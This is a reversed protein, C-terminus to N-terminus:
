NKEPQPDRRYRYERGSAKTSDRARCRIFGLRTLIKSVRNQLSQTWDTKHPFGLACLVESVTVEIRDGLWERVNPEWVDVVYRAAQEATALAELEPTELWWPEGARYRHVAEAWLQDRARELGALDVMGRCRVPWFRRAGTEDKFYGTAPPNITAAFICQRLLSSMHKGYPLRIRDRRRTIFAKATSSSASVLAVMEAFEIIWVGATEQAADKTKLESLRDTFWEDRRALTQLAKSKQKGQPGELVLLHDVQCGPAYIRATGSILYRPSIARVYASDEVHFYDILWTDLRPTGDWRLSDLYDRVPHFPNYRAAAQVARGAYTIVANIKQKQFWVLTL